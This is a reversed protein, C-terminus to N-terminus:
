CSLVGQEIAALSSVEVIGGLLALAGDWRTALIRLADTSGVTEVQHVGEASGVELTRRAELSIEVALLSGVVVGDSALALAGDWRSALIWDTNSSSVSEINGVIQAM